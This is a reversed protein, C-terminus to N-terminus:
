FLNRFAVVILCLVGLPIYVFSMVQFRDQIKGILNKINPQSRLMRIVIVIFTIPLLSFAALAPIPPFVTGLSRQFLLAAITAIVLIVFGKYAFGHKLWPAPLLASLLVLFGTVALSELLAFAMMYAFVAAIEGLAFYLIFSSLINFFNFISWSFCIFVAISLVSLIESRHPFRNRIFDRNLRERAKRGSVPL